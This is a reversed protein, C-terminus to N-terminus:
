FGGSGLWREIQPLRDAGFFPEGDVIIYPSGFVGKALAAECEGKLREKLAPGNLAELLTARDAGQRAALELVVDLDSINRGDRYLARFVGHAFARATECDQDHLWYYTRAAHQTALPFTEPHTYPVDLFRASRRFDHLSYEGKLPLTTLPAGGTQKFIVGLLIPRWRVKRKHRAALDDIKESALYGYPSSFDFYFEIPQPM